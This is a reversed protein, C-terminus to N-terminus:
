PTRVLGALGTFAPYASTMLTVPIPALYDRFRGKEVFRRCFDSARFAPLLRPLVGGALAVGGRAGASLALNGAYSGLMAFFHGLALTALADGQGALRTVEAPPLPEPMNQGDPSRLAAHINALGPGSLVREASVHGHRRRLISLIRAEDDSAAPMTAHGGETPIANWGAGSPVLLSVGLGTGPGLVLIPAAPDAQGDKVAEQDNPHLLPVALAVAIFDNVVDLRALNLRQRTAETSFRWAHNTMSVDDGLIPCAVAFAARGPPSPPDVTRLYAEAAEAPGAFDACPLTMPHLIETGGAPVLAFRANTGGIDAILGPKPASPVSSPAATQSSDPM